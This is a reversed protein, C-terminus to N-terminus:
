IFKFHKLRRILFNLEFLMKTKDASLEIKRELWSIPYKEVLAFISVLFVKSAMESLQYNIAKKLLFEIVQHILLAIGFSILVGFLFLMIKFLTVSLGVM